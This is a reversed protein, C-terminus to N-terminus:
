PMAVMIQWKIVTQLCKDKYTIYKGDWVPLTDWGTRWVQLLWPTQRIFRGLSLPLTQQSVLIVSQLNVWPTTSKRKMVKKDNWNQLGIIKITINYITESIFEAIKGSCKLLLCLVYSVKNYICM